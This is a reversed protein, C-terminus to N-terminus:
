FPLGDTDDIAEFNPQTYAQPVYQPPEIKGQSANQISPTDESKSDVFNVEKVEVDTAYCTKGDNDKWSRTKLPGIICISSGKGFYKGIFEATSRWAICNFFDARTQGDKSKRNVAINFTCVPVGNPTQKVEVESSIRGGLIVQNFNFNSM